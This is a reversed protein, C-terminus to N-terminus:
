SFARPPVSPRRTNSIRAARSAPLPTIARHGARRLVVVCGRSCGGTVGGDILRGTRASHPRSRSEECQMWTRSATGQGIRQSCNATQHLQDSMNRARSDSLQDTTCADHNSASIVAANIRASPTERVRQGVAINRESTSAGIADLTPDHDWAVANQASAREAPPKRAIRDLQRSLVPQTQRPQRHSRDSRRQDHGANM